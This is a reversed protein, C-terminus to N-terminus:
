DKILEDFIIKNVTFEEKETFGEGNTVANKILISVDDGNVNASDQYERLRSLLQQYDNKISANKSEYDNKTLYSIQDDADSGDTRSFGYAPKFHKNM